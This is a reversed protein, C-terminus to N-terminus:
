VADEELFQLMSPDNRFKRLARYLHTKVTSESKKLVQSVEKISLHDMFRLIFVEKEMKSLKDLLSEVHKWFDQKMLSNLADPSDDVKSDSQYEEQSDSFSSLVRQFRKKRHFDRVRNAAISFLWSKFRKVEKLKSLNNFAKLFIEQTLDEADMTSRTRFYVMRFIDRHFLDALRALAMRNGTKAKEVWQAVDTSADPTRGHHQEKLAQRM